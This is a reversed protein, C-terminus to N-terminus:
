VSRVQDIWDPQSLITMVQAVEIRLRNFVLTATEMDHARGAHELQGAMDSLRELSLNRAAGKLAHAHAAISKCDGSRVALTLEAFREKSSEIYSPLVERIIDEDGLRDILRDWNIISRPDVSNPQSSGEHSSTGQSGLREPERTDALTSEM